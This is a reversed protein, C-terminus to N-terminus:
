DFRAQVSLGSFNTVGSVLMYYTGAAPASVRITENNGPRQSRLQFSTTTPKVDRSVYLTVDGTGGYTMLSLLSAGAPVVIGYMKGGGAAGFVGPTAVKNTLARVPLEGAPLLATDVAITADLLGLGINRDPTAPFGRTSEKLLLELQAPTLPTAAVSQVLAAVGAVHPSAMSTGIYGGYTAQGLDPSTPSSNIAQWVSGNPTGDVGGGGGPATLDILSGFNSYSARAGTIGASAVSVVNNCSAPSFNAVESNSNGAAVVILTGRSVAGNIADQTLANCAGGGGLSMNIVEARDAVALTPVGAVVGGSAWVIADAIDSTYGGCRGLARIPLVKANFAVGAGGVGNNTQQAVTGTVHSGHFSSNRAATGAGCEGAATWDGYDYAGPVRAATPRRSVFPDTIFDYGALMSADLDPHPVIGTDIVAVVVGAGTSKNWAPEVNAGGPTAKMHWQNSGYLPDNPVLQPQSDIATHQLLQDVQAYAVNPDLAIEAAIARIETASVNQSLRLLEAGTGLRRVMAARPAANAASANAGNATARAGRVRRAASDVTSLKMAASTSPNKYRVILRQSSLLSAEPATPDAGVILPENAAATGLGTAIMAALLRLRNTRTNLTM